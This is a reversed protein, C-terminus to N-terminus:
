WSLNKLYRLSLLIQRTADVAEDEDEDEDEIFHHRVGTKQAARLAAPIDVIGTGLPV